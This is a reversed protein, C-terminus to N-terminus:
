IGIECFTADSRSEPVHLGDEKLGNIHFEIAEVM